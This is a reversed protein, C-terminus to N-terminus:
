DETVNQACGSCGCLLLRRGMAFLDADEADWVGTKQRYHARLNIFLCKAALFPTLNAGNLFRINKRSEAIRSNIAEAGSTKLDDLVPYSDPDFSSCCKHSRFHFRDVCVKTAHFIWPCRLIASKSFNCTNNYFLARPLKRFRSLVVSM